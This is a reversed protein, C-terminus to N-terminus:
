IIRTNIQTKAVTRNSHLPVMLALVRVLPFLLQLKYITESPLEHDDHCFASIWPSLAMASLKVGQDLLCLSILDCKSKNM